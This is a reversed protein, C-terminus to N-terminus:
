EAMITRAPLITGRCLGFGLRAFGNSQCFGRLIVSDGDELYTRATGNQLGIPV